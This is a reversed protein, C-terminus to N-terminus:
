SLSVDEFFVRMFEIMGKLNTLRSVNMGVHTNSFAWQDAMM